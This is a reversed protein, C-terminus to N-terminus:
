PYLYALFESTEIAIPSSEVLTRVAKPYRRGSLLGQQVADYFDVDVEFSGRRWSCM